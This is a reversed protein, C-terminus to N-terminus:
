DGPIESLVYERLWALIEVELQEIERFVEQKVWSGFLDLPTVNANQSWKIDQAVPTLHNGKLRAISVQGPFRLELIGALSRTQDLNDSSFKVLLNNAVEYRREILRNTEEPSPTFEPAGMPALQQMVNPAFQQMVQSVQGMMPISEKAAFNNFAMLINGSRKVEFLSGILLHIKCGMSHGLGFIPLNRDSIYRDELAYLTRDFQWLVQEAIQSHEFTNVFPTAIIVYGQAALFELLRRYSLHPLTAIFAGGLFHIVGIPRRPILVWSGSIELWEM